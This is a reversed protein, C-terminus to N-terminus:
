SQFLEREPFSKQEAEPQLTFVTGDKVYALAHDLAAGYHTREDSFGLYFVWADPRLAELVSSSTPNTGWNQTAPLSQDAERPDEWAANGEGSGLIADSKRGLKMEYMGVKDLGAIYEGLPLTGGPLTISILDPVGDGKYVQETRVQYTTVIDGSDDVWSGEVRVVRGSIVASSFERLTRADNVNVSWDATVHVAPALAVDVDSVVHSM